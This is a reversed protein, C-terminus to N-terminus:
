LSRATRRSGAMCETLWWLFEDETKYQRALEDITFEVDEWEVVQTSPTRGKTSARLHRRNRSGDKPKRAMKGVRSYAADGVTRTALASLCPAACRIESLPKYPSFAASRDAINIKRPRSKHHTYILPIVDAMAIKTEGQLFAAVAHRHRTTRYDKEGRVRPHFLTTLFEGLSRFAWTRLVDDMTQFNSRRSARLSAQTSASSPSATIPTNSSSGSGRARISELSPIALPAPTKNYKRKPAPQPPNDSMEDILAARIFLVCPMNMQQGTFPIFSSAPIASAPSLPLGAAPNSRSDEAAPNNLRPSPGASPNTSLPSPGASPKTARTSLTPGPAMAQAKKRKHPM